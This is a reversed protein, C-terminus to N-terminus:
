LSHIITSPPPKPLDGAFNWAVSDEIVTEMPPNGCVFIIEGACNGVFTEEAEEKDPKKIKPIKYKEPM